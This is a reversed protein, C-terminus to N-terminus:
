SDGWMRRRKSRPALQTYLETMVVSKHGLWDQIERTNFGRNILEYGCGHRLAHPSPKLPLRPECNEGARTLIKFFGSRTLEGGRENEFVFDKGKSKKWLIELAKVEDREMEHTGSRSGKLRSIHVEKRRFDVQDWRLAVLESVRLGHRFAILLMTSDRHRYRGFRRAAKRLREVEEATLYPPKRGKVEQYERKRPPMPRGPNEVNAM